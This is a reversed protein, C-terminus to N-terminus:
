EQGVQQELIFKRALKFASELDPGELVDMESHTRMLKATILNDRFYGKFVAEDSELAKALDILYDDYELGKAKALRIFTGRTAEWLLGAAKQHNGAAWERDANALYDLPTMNNRPDPTTM